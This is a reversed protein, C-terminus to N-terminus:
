SGILALQLEGKFFERRGCFMLSCNLTKVAASVFVGFTARPDSHSAKKARGESPSFESNPGV